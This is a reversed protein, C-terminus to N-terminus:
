YVELPEAVATTLYFDCTRGYIDRKNKNVGLRILLNYKKSFFEYNEFDSVSYTTIYFLLSPYRLDEIIDPNNFDGENITFKNIDLGNEVLIKCQKELTDYDKQVSLVIQMLSGYDNFKNHNIDMGSELIYKFNKLNNSKCIIEFIDNEYVDTYTINDHVVPKTLFEYFKDKPLYEQINDDPHTKLHQVFEDFSEFSSM